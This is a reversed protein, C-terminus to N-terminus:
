GIDETVEFWSQDLAPVTREDEAEESVWNTVLLLMVM